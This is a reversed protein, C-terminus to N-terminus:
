PTVQPVARDKTTHKLVTPVPWGGVVAIELSSTCDSAPPTWTSTSEIPDGVGKQIIKTYLDLKLVCGDGLHIWEMDHAHVWVQASKNNTAIATVRIDYNGVNQIFLQNDVGYLISTIALLSTLISAKKFSLSKM